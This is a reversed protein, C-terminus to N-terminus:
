LKAIEDNWMAALKAAQADYAAKDAWTSRPDLAEDPVGPCHAPCHLGFVPDTRYEVESLKGELVATIMARTYAINIRKGIGYPGGQWGTNILWVQSRHTDLKEGLLQAYRKPPLPLFPAGFCSSFTATPETVGTETGAVKATYGLLFQTMAQETTLRSIPPLAGFADCTLFFVNKPHGGISPEVAGNVFHLPYAARTNETISQDDFDLARTDADAVVNELVTGFRIAGYIDPESEQRLRICKAYCGGEFNFIGHESWGHEDDGILRRAPDASLSTKGTGSLGFFLATDGNEGINASCHMPALGKQPLLYNMITFVSKKMEGAYQTGGILVIRREFNVLVFTETRTGDREPDAKFDPASLVLFDPKHRALRDGDLRLFLQRAFLNHWAYQNVVRVPLQHDLDAGAACDQVYLPKDSLFECVRDYLRDFKDPEIAQNVAGWWIQDESEPSRVVFKDKPSRGTHRGTRVVLAGNDALFGENRQLAHETLVPATLNWYVTASTRIGHTDLGHQSIHNGVQSM